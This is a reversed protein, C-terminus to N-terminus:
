RRRVFTRMTQGATTRFIRPRPSGEEGAVFVFHDGELQYIAPLPKGMDEGMSDTWTISKPATSADLTFTGALLLTGDLTRVEFQNGAFTTIAGPAGHADPPNAVGDAELDVQEWLGQLDALDRRSDSDM